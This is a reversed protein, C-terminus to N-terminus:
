FFIFFYEKKKVFYKGKNQELLSNMCVLDAEIVSVDGWILPFTNELVILSGCDKCKQKLSPTTHKPKKESLGQM